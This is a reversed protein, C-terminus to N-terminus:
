PDWEFKTINKSESGVLFKGAESPAEKIARCCFAINSKVHPQQLTEHRLIGLEDKVSHVNVDGELSTSIIYNADPLFDCSLLMSDSTQNKLLPQSANRLDWYLLM